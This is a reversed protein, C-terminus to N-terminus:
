SLITQLSNYIGLLSVVLLAVSLMLADFAPLLLFYFLVFGVILMTPLLGNQGVLFWYLALLVLSFGLKLRAQNLWGRAIGFYFIGLVACGTIHSIPSGQGGWMLMLMLMLLIVSILMGSGLVAQFAKNFLAQNWEETDLLLNIPYILVANILILRLVYPEAAQVPSFYEAIAWVAVFLYPVILRFRGRYALLTLLIASLAFTVPLYGNKYVVVITFLPAILAIPLTKILAKRQKAFAVLPILAFCIFAVIAVVAVNTTALAKVGALQAVVICVFVFACAGLLTQIPVVNRELQLELNNPLQFTEKLFRMHPVDQLQPKEKTNHLKAGKKNHMAVHSDSKESLFARM